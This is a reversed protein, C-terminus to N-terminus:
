FALGVQGFTRRPKHGSYAKQVETLLSSVKVIIKTLPNRAWWITDLMILVVGVVEPSIHAFTTFMQNLWNVLSSNLPIVFNRAFSM